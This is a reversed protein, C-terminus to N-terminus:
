GNNSRRITLEQKARKKAELIRTRKVTKRDEFSNCGGDCDRCEDVNVNKDQIPCYIM